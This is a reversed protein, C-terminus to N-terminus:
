WILDTFKKSRSSLCNGPVSYTLCGSGTASAPGRLIEMNDERMEKFDEQQIDIVLLASKEEIKM